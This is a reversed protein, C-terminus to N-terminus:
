LKVQMGLGNVRYEIENEILLGQTNESNKDLGHKVDVKIVKKNYDYTVERVVSHGIVIKQSNYFM